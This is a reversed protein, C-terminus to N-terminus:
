SRALFREFHTASPSAPSQSGGCYYYCVKVCLFRCGVTMGNGENMGDMLMLMLMMWWAMMTMADYKRM